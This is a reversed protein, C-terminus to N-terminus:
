QLTPADAGKYVRRTCACEFVQQDSKSEGRGYIGDTQGSMRCRMCRLEYQLGLSKCVTHFNDIMAMTRRDIPEQRKEGNDLPERQAPTKPAAPAIIGIGRFQRVSCLCTIEISTFDDNCTPCVYYALGNARSCTACRMSLEIGMGVFLVEADFLVQVKDLPIAVIHKVRLAPSRSIIDVVGM